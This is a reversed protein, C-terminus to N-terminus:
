CVIRLGEYTVINRCFCRLGVGVPIDALLIVEIPKANIAEAAVFTVVYM